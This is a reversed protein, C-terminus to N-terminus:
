RVTSDAPPEAVAALPPPGASPERGSLVDLVARVGRSEEHRELAHYLGVMSELADLRQADGGFRRREIRVAEARGTDVRALRVSLARMAGDDGQSMADRLVDESMKEY